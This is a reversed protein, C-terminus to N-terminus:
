MSPQRPRRHRCGAGRRSAAQHSGASSKCCSRVDRDQACSPPPLIAGFGYSSCITTFFPRARTSPRGFPRIDKSATALFWLQGARALASRSPLNWSNQNPICAATGAADGNIASPAFIARTAPPNRILPRAPGSGPDNPRGTFVFAKRRADMRRAPEASWDEARGEAPPPPPLGM